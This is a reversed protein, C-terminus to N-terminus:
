HRCNPDLSSAAKARFVQEENSVTKSRQSL